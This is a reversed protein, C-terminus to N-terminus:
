SVTWGKNTAIAIEEATLKAKNTSGLILKQTYLTGGNAVDYSLNLDYVKNIVNMLSEYTLLTSSSVNVTFSSNNERKATYAKGINKLGGFNTLNNCNSFVASLEKTANSFDLEPLTILSTCNGFMGTVNEAKSCNLQSIETLLKCSNFLYGVNTANEVNLNSVTTLSECGYFIYFVNLINSYDLEPLSKLAACGRFVSEASSVNTTNFVPIEELTKCNYFMNNINTPNKVKELLENLINLRVGGSFLSNCETIEFDSTDANVEGEVGFISTGKKINEPVLNVDGTVTVVNFLGEKTQTEASPVVHLEDAEIKAINVKNYLGDYSQEELSPTVTLEESEIANVTVKNFLGEEIQTEVSPTINLEDAEIKAVNIRSYLGEFNQEDKTPTVNLEEAQIPKVTVTKYALKSPKYVQEEMSPIVELDELEPYVEKVEEELIPIEIENDKEYELVELMKEM